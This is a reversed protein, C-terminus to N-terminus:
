PFTRPRFCDRCFFPYPATHKAPASLVKVIYSSSPSYLLNSFPTHALVFISNFHPSAASILIHAASPSLDSRGSFRLQVTLNLPKLLGCHTFIDVFPISLSASYPYSSSCAVTVTATFPIPVSLSTLIM